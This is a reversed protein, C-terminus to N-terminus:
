KKCSSTFRQRIKTPNHHIKFTYKVPLLSRDDFSFFGAHSLADFTKAREDLQTRTRHECKNQNTEMLKKYTQDVIICAAFPLSYFFHIASTRKSWNKDARTLAICTRHRAIHSILANRHSVRTWAGLQVRRFYAAILIYWSSYQILLALIVDYSVYVIYIPDTYQDKIKLNTINIGFFIITCCLIVVRQIPM